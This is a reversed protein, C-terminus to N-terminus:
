IIEEWQKCITEINLIRRIKSSEQSISFLLERNEVLQMMVISMKDSDNVPVLFGNINNNIIMHAGGVPCDTCITPIGLAMSEIMSNSMGEYNSSLIFMYSKLIDNHINKSFGKFLISSELYKLKVYQKLEEELEGKGYIEFLFEPYKIHFKEFADIAMYINKQRNLRSVIVVRKEREGLYPLPLDNIIPNMIIVARKYMCKPYYKKADNTQFVVKNPLVYILKQFPRMYPREIFAKTPDNRQSIIVKNKLGINALVTFMNQNDLFSIFITDHNTKMKERIIKIQKMANLNRNVYSDNINVNSDINYEVVNSKLLLLCVEYKKSAFYNALLSVVRQAGGGSMNPMIFCIKKM